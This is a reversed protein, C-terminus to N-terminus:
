QLLGCAEKRVWSEPHLLWLLCVGELHHRVAIWCEFPVLIDPTGNLIILEDYSALMVKVNSMIRIQTSLDDHFIKALVDILSYLSLLLNTQPTRLAFRHLAGSASAAIDHNPNLTLTAVHAGTM